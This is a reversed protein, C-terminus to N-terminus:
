GVKNVEIETTRDPIFVEVPNSLVIVKIQDDFIGGDFITTSTTEGDFIGDSM